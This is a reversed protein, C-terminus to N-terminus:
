AGHHGCRMWSSGTHRCAFATTSAFFYASSTNIAFTLQLSWLAKQWSPWETSRKGVIRAYALRPSSM